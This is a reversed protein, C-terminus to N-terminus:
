TSIARWPTVGGYATFAGDISVPVITASSRRALACFGPHFTQLSGDSTRTGEPFVLLVEGDTRATHPRGEQVYEVGVARKNEVVIRTTLARTQVTLNPRAMATRLIERGVLTSITDAKM